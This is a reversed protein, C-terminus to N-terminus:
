LRAKINNKTVTANFNVLIDNQKTYFHKKTFNGCIKIAPKVFTKFNRTKSFFLIM